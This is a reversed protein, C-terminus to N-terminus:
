QALSLLPFGKKLSALFLNSRIARARTHPFRSFFSQFIPLNFSQSDTRGLNPQEVGQTGQEGTGKNRTGQEKTGQEKTGQERNGQERTGQEKTGQEKTGQERTGQEGTGQEKL